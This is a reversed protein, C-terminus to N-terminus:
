RYGWVAGLQDLGARLTALGFREVAEDHVVVAVICSRQGVPLAGLAAAYRSWARDDHVVGRSRGGSGAWSQTLAGCIELGACEWADRLETAWALQDASIKGQEALREAMRGTRNRLVVVRAGTEPDPIEVEDAVDRGGNIVVQVRLTKAARRGRAAERATAMGVPRRAQPVGRAVDAVVDAVTTVSVDDGPKSM